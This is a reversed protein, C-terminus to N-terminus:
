PDDLADMVVYLYGSIILDMGVTKQQTAGKM